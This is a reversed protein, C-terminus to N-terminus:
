QKDPLTGALFLPQWNVRGTRSPAPRMIRFAVPQGAKLTAQLRKVDEASTVPQRNIDTIIDNRAMGIDEAFSNPDVRTVLVGDRDEYGLREREGQRLTRYWFGFLAETTESRTSEPQGRRGGFTEAFIEAREGVTVQFDMKKGNRLVSVNLVNGVPTASVRSVLDDGDQVPKGEISVIVDEPKIGAKDAPGGKNVGDVFVGQTAGYAKLLEAPAGKRFTIGIGGRTVKGTKIIQNYANVAMNVPLAFGVGNYTGTETAIATNIGIVEGKLNLLPGGSNGPNIAADTQLFRQLQHQQDGVERGKASIIGATVTAELGFPSGIAIVWDGVQTGDSNGIKAPTLSRDADIKIVGVDLEPDSGILKADYDKTDNNFRVRIRDAEDVVHLNTLIYGNKDVIFGSGASSRRFPRQPIDGFPSGFFRRFFDMGLPDEEEEPPGPRQRPRRQTQEQERTGYSSTINVVSPELQKALQSFATSLQAPSPIVLPTADPAPAQGKQALVATNVLTGILIGISLTFILLAASLLKQQKFKALM